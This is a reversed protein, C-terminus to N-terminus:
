VIEFVTPRFSEYFPILCRWRGEECEDAEDGDNPRVQFVGCREFRPVRGSRHGLSRRLALGRLIYEHQGDHSWGFPMLTLPQTTDMPVIDPSLKVCITGGPSGEPNSYRLELDLCAPNMSCHTSLVVTFTQTLGQITLVAEKVAGCPAQADVLDVSADLISWHPVPPQRISDSMVSDPSHTSGDLEYNTQYGIVDTDWLVHGFSVSGNIGTWSWSPGQYELPRAPQPTHATWLLDNPLKYIWHGAVYVNVTNKHTFNQLQHNQEKRDAHQQYATAIGSIALIRDTPRSLKRQTYDRVLGRWELDFGPHEIDLRYHLIDKSTRRSSALSWGDVSLAGNSRQVDHRCVLRLQLPCYELVHVSLLAEQLAWARSDLPLTECRDTDLEVMGGDHTQFGGDEFCVNSVIPKPTTRKQLFGDATSAATAAAITIIANSYISPMKAIERSKDIPCDQVICLSDVWLFSHGLETTVKVADRLTLPLDDYNIVKGTSLHNSRTTMHLQDGGWCYSLAIYDVQHLDGCEVLRLEYIGCSKRIHILRSPGEHFMSRKKGHHALCDSMWTKVLDYTHSTDPDPNVPATNMRMDHTYTAAHSERRVSDESYLRYAVGDCFREHGRALHMTLHRGDQYRSVDWDQYLTLNPLLDDLTSGAQALKDVLSVYVACNLQCAQLVFDIDLTTPIGELRSSLFISACYECTHEQLGRLARPPKQERPQPNRALCKRQANAVCNVHLYCPATPTEELM